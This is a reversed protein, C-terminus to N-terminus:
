GEEGPERDDRVPEAHKEFKEVQRGSARETRAVLILFVAMRRGIWGDTEVGWAETLVRRARTNPVWQWGDEFTILPEINEKTYKFRNFVREEVVSRIRGEYRRNPRTELAANTLLRHLHPTMDMPAGALACGRAREGTVDTVGLQITGTLTTTMTAEEKHKDKHKDKGKTNTNTNYHANTNPNEQHQIQLYRTNTKGKDLGCPNESVGPYRSLLVALSM